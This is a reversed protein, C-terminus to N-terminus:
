KLKALLGSHWVRDFAKSIDCFVVRIDKQNDIAQTFIHYLHALQYVTSDGPKFGSQKFSISNNDRLFNYMYKFVAREFLKGVCSLISVPRYNDPTSADGKKFVPVVNAKKWQSPYTTLRLSLNFLKTLSPVISDGAMKLM